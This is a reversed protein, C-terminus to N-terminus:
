GNLKGKLEDEEGYAAATLADLTWHAEKEEYRPRWSAPLGFLAAAIRRMLLAWWNGAMTPLLPQPQTYSIAEGKQRASEGWAYFNVVSAARVKRLVKL